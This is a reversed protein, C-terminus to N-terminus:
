VIDPNRKMAWYELLVPEHKEFVGVIRTDHIEELIYHKGCDCDHKSNEWKTNGLFAIAEDRTLKGYDMVYKITNLDNNNRRGLFVPPTEQEDMEIKLGCSCTFKVSTEGNAITPRLAGHKQFLPFQQQQNTVTM